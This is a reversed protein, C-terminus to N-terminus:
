YFPLYGEFIIMWLAAYTMLLGFSSSQGLASRGSYAKIPRLLTPFDEKILKSVPM